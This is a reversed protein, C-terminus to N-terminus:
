PSGKAWASRLEHVELTTVKASGNKVSLGLSRDDAKPIVPFPAYTLGDAAWVTLSTRDALATLRLKGSLLPAPAKHDGVHLEQKAADYRVPTGRVNLLLEAGAGVEAELRLELLEANVDKLPNADGPKLSVPGFRHSKERGWGIQIRRGDKEPVDSFTQAAYFGRGRHGPLKKTEPTFTQGDFSGVLYESSAATLVWKEKKPDSDLPLPFLDPCEFLGEVKSRYTWDKLDPSTLFHVTHGVGKGGKPPLGVYLVMVWRNTPGHWIVKPDRDGPAINKVVPNGAYKAWTRGGDNSYALCQVAPPGFATYALVLPPKGDKGLGSTNKWDVVASGSFMPGM